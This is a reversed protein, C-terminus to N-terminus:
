LIQVSSDENDSITEQFVADLHQSFRTGIFIVLEKKMYNTTDPVLLSQKADGFLERSQLM